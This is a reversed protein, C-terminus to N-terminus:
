RVFDISNNASVVWFIDEIDLQYGLVIGKVPAFNQIVGLFLLM